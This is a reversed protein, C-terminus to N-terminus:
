GARLPKRILVPASAGRLVKDTVSGFVLRSLTGQGHTTLAILDVRERTAVDLICTAVDRAPVVDLLAAHGRARVADLVPELSRRVADELRRRGIEDGPSSRGAMVHLVIVSAGEEVLPLATDLLARAHAVDDVPLLAREFPAAPRGLDLPADSEARESPRVLLVPRTTHRALGDAVSGLWARSLPGRGHTTMVILDPGVEEIREELASVTPGDLLTATAPVGSASVRKLVRDLYARDVQIGELEVGSDILPVGELYVLSAVEHVLTLDVTAGSRKALALARVLAHEGFESGDLPVFIRRMMNVRRWYAAAFSFNRLGGREIYPVPARRPGTGLSRRKCRASECDEPERVHTPCPHPESVLAPEVGADTRISLHVAPLGPQVVEPLLGVLLRRGLIRELTLEGLTEIGEGAVAVLDELGLGVVARRVGLEQHTLVLALVLGNLTEPGRDTAPPLLGAASGDGRRM